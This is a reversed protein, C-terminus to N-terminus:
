KCLAPWDRGSNRCGSLCLQTRELDKKREVTSEFLTTDVAVWSPASCNLISPSNLLWDQECCLTTLAHLYDIRVEMILSRLATASGGLQFALILGTLFTTQAHWPPSSTTIEMISWLTGSSSCQLPSLPLPKVMLLCLSSWLCFQSYHSSHLM